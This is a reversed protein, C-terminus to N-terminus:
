TRGAKAKKKAVGVVKGKSRRFNAKTRQGRVPLGKSHRVGKYCKIRRLRKITNDKVFDLTGLFLHKDEGTEYNKRQNLMWVPIGKGMPDAIVDNLKKIEEESLAGVKKGKNIGAVNCIANALNFGMGKIKRLSIKLPKDGILDVQGIRVIHKLSEQPKQVPAKKVPKVETNQKEETM